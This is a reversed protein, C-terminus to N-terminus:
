RNSKRFERLQEVSPPLKNKPDGMCLHVPSPIDPRAPWFFRDQVRIYGNLGYFSADPHNIPVGAIKWTCGDDTLILEPINNGYQIIGTSNLNEFPNVKVESM